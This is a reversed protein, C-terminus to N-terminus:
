DEQIIVAHLDGSDPSKVTVIHRGHECAYELLVTEDPLVQKKYVVEVHDFMHRYVQEPYIQDALNLYESNHLHGNYDMMLRYAKVKESKCVPIDPQKTEPFRYEPFNCREPEPGFVEMLEPTLRLFTDKFGDMAAWQAVAKAVINGAEDCIMYERNARVRTFSSVWTSVVIPQFMKPRSYVQMNWGLVIWSVPSIGEDTNHGAEFAHMMTINSFLELLAKNTIKKEDNVDQGRVLVKQEYIM